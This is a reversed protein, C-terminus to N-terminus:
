FVFKLSELDMDYVMSVGVVDTGAATVSYKVSNIQGDNKALVVKNKARNGAASSDIAVTFTAESSANASFSASGTLGTGSTNMTLTANKIDETIALTGRALPFTLQYTATNTGANYDTDKIYTLKPRDTSGETENEGFEWSGNATKMSWFAHYGSLSSDRTERFTALDRGQYWSGSSSSTAIVRGPMTWNGSNDYLTTKRNAVTQCNSHLYVQEDSALHLAEDEANHATKLSNWLNLASEGGGVITVGGAGLLVGMGDNTGTIFQLVNFTTTNNANSCRIVNHLSNTETSTNHFIIGNTFKNTGTFDNDGSFTQSINRLAVTGDASPFKITRIVDKAIEETLVNVYGGKNHHLTIAGANNGSGINLYSTTGTDYYYLDSNARLTQQGNKGSTYTLYYTAASTPTTEAVNVTGSINIPWAPATTSGELNGTTVVQRWGWWESSSKRNRIWMGAEQNGDDMYIQSGSTGSYGFSLLSGDSGNPASGANVRAWQLMGNSLFSNVKATTDLVSQPSLYSADSAKPIRTTGNGINRVTESLTSFDVIDQTIYQQLELLTDKATDSFDADLLFTDIKHNVVEIAPYVRLGRLEECMEDESITGLLDAVYGAIDAIKEEAGNFEVSPYNDAGEGNLKITLTKAVKDAQASYKIKDISTETSGDYEIIEPKSNAENGTTIKLKNKVKDASVASNATTAQRAYISNKVTDISLGASGNYTKVDDVTAGNQTKEGVAIQLSNTVKTAEDAKVANQAYFANKITDISVAQSGDYTTKTDTTVNNKTEEGIVVTLKNGVKKASEATDATTAHEATKAKKIQEITKAESGDYSIIEDIKQGNETIQNGTSIGLVKDVKDATGASEAITAYDATKAKKIQEITKAQSGNYSIVEDIQKGNETIQNGTNIGLVGDVKGATGASEATNATAATIAYDARYAWFEKTDGDLADKYKGVDKAANNIVEGAVAGAITGAQEATVFGSIDPLDNAELKKDLQTQINETVGDLYTLLGFDTSDVNSVAIKGNANSILVKGPTLNEDTVTSAAGEITAQKNDIEHQLALLRGVLPTTNKDEGEGVIGSLVGLEETTITSAVVVGDNDNSADSNEARASVLVRDTTLFNHAISSAAGTALYNTVYDETALPKEWIIWKSQNDEKTLLCTLVGTMKFSENLELHGALSFVFAGGLQAAFPLVYTVPMSGTDAILAYVIKEENLAEMVSEYSTSNVIACFVKNDIKEQLKQIEAEGVFPLYDVNDQGNGFKFRPYNYESDSDSDPDYIILEGALPVFADTRPEQLTDGNPYVDLLWEEATKHKNQVRGRVKKLETNSM